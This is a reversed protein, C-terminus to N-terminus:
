FVVDSIELGQISEQLRQMAAELSEFLEPMLAVQGSRLAEEGAGALQALEKAQLFSAVGKLEHLLHTAGPTDNLKFLRCAQAADGGHQRMFKRLIDGYRKKDGGFSKMGATFDLVALSIESPMVQATHISMESLQDVTGTKKQVLVAMLKDVDLPKTVHGVMGAQRSKERDQPQAFATVAIIPLEQLGLDERIIRTASYGDMVPMQIDMLVADFPESDLRLTAVAAVGNNVLVVEAGARTLLQEIVEQNLANDEAVLLRMGALPKDIKKVMPLLTAPEGAYLRILAEQLSAPTLPKAVIGDLHLGDSALAAQELEVMSAMLLVQPLGLGPMAYAQRLMELGDMGPMRWDLLLLDYDAEAANSRHLENLAATASDVATALWGQATCTQILMERVLAHDDVILIRLNNPIDAAANPEVRDEQTLPVVFRFESGQGMVSEGGIQGGMLTALRESIALGLGSGGYQRSISANAQTFGNFISGMQEPAIGIGTDRVSFLLTLPGGETTQAGALCHVSVVIAGTNTFKVANSTLNLLIQQLRLADGILADPVEADLMFVAEVPKNGLGVGVVSAVTRLIASLSFPAQELRLEGAEIKSFDLIEDILARLAQASLAIKDAYDRQRRGLPLDVLLGAFGVVANLPTRLEHSMSALFASKAHNASDADRAKNTLATNLSYIQETRHSVLEELKQQHVDLQSRARLSKLGFAMDDVLEELLLVEAMGFSDQAVSYLTFVCLVQKDVILPLAVSSQYGQAIAAELWPAMKPNTWCNQNIQIAGTRLATGTPGRGTAQEADWTVRINKLYGTVDGFAAMPRVTKAVDQQAGGIWAMLYGGVEVVLRCIEILLQQETNAHVVAHNCVSLLRLARNLRRQEAEAAVLEATRETVREELHDRYLELTLEAQRRVSIDIIIGRYRLVQGDAEPIAQARSMLWRPAVGQPLKVQWELEVPTGHAIAAQTIQELRPLDAPQVTQRWAMYSVPEENPELGNLAWVEKSWLTSGTKINWEFSGAGAGQLAIQLQAERERLLTELQRQATVDKVAGYMSKANRLEDFLFEGTQVVLHESGDDWAIRYEIDWASQEVLSKMVLDEVRQRDQPHVRSLFVAASPVPVDEPRFDFLRYMEVSCTFPIAEFNEQGVLDMSWAGVKALHTAQDLMLQSRLLDARAVKSVALATTLEATRTTVVQELTTRQQALEELALRRATIDRTIGIFHSVRGKADFMPTISLENWFTSGDKRYNLIDGNFEAAKIQAQKISEVVGANTQVGQMFSCTRGLIETESYGTISSFAANASLIRGEPGAILVGQSIAKLAHDSISLQEKAQHRETIDRSLVIFRPSEGPETAKRSISLEFWLEGQALALAFQKGSSYGQEHAEQIAMMVVQAADVPLVDSVLHGILDQVPAALQETRPSHFDHYRGELDLEFMLDPIAALTARIRSEGLRLSKETSKRETIDTIFGHWLTAGDPEREPLANGFLWRVEGDAFKVRYEHQWPTLDCASKQISSIVEAYDNPHLINLVASADECVEEPSVRYVDRIADSAYPFCSSGDPHLRYQYVVGPVRSAIKQLRSTSDNHLAQAPLRQPANHDTVTRWYGSGRWGEENFAAASVMVPICRGDQLLGTLAFVGKADFAISSIHSNKLSASQLAKAVPLPADSSHILPLALSPSLNSM